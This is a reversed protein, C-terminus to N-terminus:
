PASAPTITSATARGRPELRRCGARTRHEGPSRPVTAAAAMASPCAPSERNLHGDRLGHGGHEGLRGLVRRVRELPNVGRGDFPLEVAGADLDVALAVLDAHERAVQGVHGPAHRLDDGHNPRERQLADDEVALGDRM